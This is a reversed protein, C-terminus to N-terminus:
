DVEEATVAFFGGVRVGGAFASQVGDKDWPLGDERWAANFHRRGDDELRELDPRTGSIRPTFLLSAIRSGNFEIPKECHAVFWRQRRGPKLQREGAPSQDVHVHFMATGDGSDFDWPEYVTIRLRMHM